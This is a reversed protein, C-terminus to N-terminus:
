NLEDSHPPEIIDWTLNGFSIKWLNSISILAWIKSTDWWKLASSRYQSLSNNYTNTKAKMLAGLTNQIEIRQNDNLREWNQLKKFYNFIRDDIGWVNQTNAFEWERLVSDPDRLKNLLYIATYDWYAWKGTTLMANISDFADVRWMMDKYEQSTLWKDRM